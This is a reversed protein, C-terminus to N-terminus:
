GLDVGLELLDTKVDPFDPEFAAIFDNATAVSFANAAVYRALACDVETVSGLRQLAFGVQAYVALYYMDPHTSWYTMPETARGFAEAPIEFAGPATGEFTFEAYSTIGEDLWPDQGQNNGVLSYFYMHAVEHSTTRGLTDPGQMIHTPFEIGGRLGPTIAFTLTPWPYPGWRASFTELSAIVKNLYTRPDEPLDPHIGVSVLVPNPANAYGTVIRFDAITMAFDRAGDVVWRGPEIESGSALVKFGDPVAISVDYHAAPSTAAEAFLETSADTAWGVGPQWALLPLASGLRLFSTSRSWRSNLEGPIEVVFSASLEITEHAGIGGNIPIRVLSPEPIDAKVEVTNQARTVSIDSISAIVGGESARRGNAWLRLVIEDTALDPTFSLRLEGEVRGTTPSAFLSVLYRPRNPDPASLRPAACPGPEEGLFLEDTGTKSGNIEPESPAPGLNSPTPTPRPRPTPTPTPTASGATEKTAPSPTEDTPIAASPGHSPVSSPTKRSMVTEVGDNPHERAEVSCSTTISSAVLVAVIGAVISRNM